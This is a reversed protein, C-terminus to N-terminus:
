LAREPEKHRGGKHFVAFTDIFKQESAFRVGFKEVYANEIFRGFPRYIGTLCLHRLFFIFGVTWVAGDARVGVRLFYPFLALHVGVVYCGPAPTAGCGYIIALHEAFM